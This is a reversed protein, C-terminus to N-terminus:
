SAAVYVVGNSADYRLPGGDTAGTLDVIIETGELWSDNQRRMVIGEDALFVTNGESAILDAPVIAWGNAADDGMAVAIGGDNGAWLGTGGAAIYYAAGDDAVVPPTNLTRTVANVRVAFADHVRLVKNVTLWPSSQSSEWEGQGTHPLDAM